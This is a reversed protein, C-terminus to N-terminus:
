LVLRARHVIVDNIPDFVNSSCWVVNTSYNNGYANFACSEVRRM